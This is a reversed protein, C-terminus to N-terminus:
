KVVVKVTVKKAKFNTGSVNVGVSYTGKKLGKKVTLKGTKSVTIKKNGSAKAFTFGKTIKTNGFTATVKINATKNAKKLDAARLTIAKATLKTFDAKNVTIKAKVTKANYNTTAKATAKVYYTGANKPSKVVTKYKADKYFTFTVKAKSSVTVKPAIVKGTYTLTKAKFTVTTAAKKVTLTARTSTSVYNNNEATTAEVYYTGANVPAADLKKIYASDAYYAYEVVIGEPVVEAEVTQAKKNYTATKDDLKLQPTAKNITIKVPASEFAEFNATAETSAVAYYTGANMPAAALKTTAEEDSYWELKLTSKVEEPVNVVVVPVAKNYTFETEAFECTPQAKTVNLTFSKTFDEYNALGAVTVTGTYKGVEVPDVSTEPETAKAYKVTFDNATIATNEGFLDQPTLAIKDGTYTVDFEDKELALTAKEITLAVSGELAECNDSADLTIVATYTGVNVPASSLPNGDVDKFAVNFADALTLGIDEKTIEVPAGTYAKSVTTNKIVPKAKTIEFTGLPLEYNPFESIEELPNAMQAPAVAILKYTGVDKPAVESAEEFTGDTNAKAYKFTINAKRYDSAVEILADINPVVANGDYTKKIVDAADAKQRMSPEYIIFTGLTLTEASFAEQPNEGASPSQAAANAIVKYTGPQSPVVTTPDAYEAAKTDTAAKTQKAFSYTVKGNYGDAKVVLTSIDPLTVALTDYTKTLKAVETAAGPDLTIAPAYITLTFTNSTTLANYNDSAKVEITGTYKGYATPESVDNNAEDKYTITLDDKDVYGLLPLENSDLVIAEGTFPKRLNKDPITPSAKTISFDGIELVCEVFDGQAPAVAILKYTGADKPAKSTAEEYDSGDKKAYEFTVASLDYGGNATVFDSATPEVIIGDYTKGLNSLNTASSSSIEISAPYITFTGVEVEHAAYEPNAQTSDQKPGYVALKYTGPASPAEDLGNGGLDYYNFGLNGKYDNKVKVYTKADGPAVATKDDVKSLKAVEDQSYVYKEFSPAYVTLAFTNHDTDLATYNDTETVTVTGKYIGAEKPTTVEVPDDKGDAGHYVYSISFDSDAVHDLGLENKTVKIEDNESYARTIKTETIASTAKKIDFKGLEISCAKFAIDSENVVAQAPAVAKVKYTGVQTPAESTYEAFTEKYKGSEKQTQKAFQFTVKDLGKYNEKAKILGAFDYGVPKGTYSINLLNDNYKIYGKEEIGSGDTVGVTPQKEISTADITFEGIPLNLAEYFPIEMSQEQEAGVVYVMYTGADTPFGVEWRTDKNIDPYGEDGKKLYKVEPNDVVAYDSEKKVLDDVTLEERNEGEFRNLNEVKATAGDLVAFAPKSITFYGVPEMMEDYADVDHTSETEAAAAQAPAQVYLMYRGVASPALETASNKNFIYGDIAGETDVTPAVEGKAYKFVPEEYYGGDLEVYTSMERPNVAQGDYAKGIKTSSNRDLDTDAGFDTKATIASKYITVEVTTKAPTPADYNDSGIITIEATYKGVDYMQAVVEGASNMYTVDFDEEKLYDLEFDGKSLTVGSENYKRRLNVETIKPSAKSITFTGIEIEVDQLPGESEDEVQASILLKYTGADVPAEPQEVEVGDTIKKYLATCDGVISFGENAEVFEAATPNVPEGDYEKNLASASAGEKVVIASSDAFAELSMNLVSGPVQAASEGIMLSALFLACFKQLSRKKM